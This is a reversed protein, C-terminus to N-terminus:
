QWELKWPVCPDLAAVLMAAQQQLREQSAPPLALLQEHLPAHPHFNWETPAVILYDAVCEGDLVIEHMLLGRATQVLSRGIGPALTAASLVGASTHQIEGDAWAHLEDFRAQWHAALYGPAVNRCRAIAGTEVAAGEWTPRRCIGTDLRPWYQVSHAADFAPLTHPLFDTDEKFAILQQRLRLMAPSHILEQMAPRDNAAVWRRSAIFEQQMPKEGLLPPLDLLCRWLHELLLEHLVAPDQRQPCPQGQAADLAFLAAQAHATGCLAYFRQVLQTAQTANRGRLVAAVDPRQSSIDASKIRGESYDLRLLVKGPDLTPM